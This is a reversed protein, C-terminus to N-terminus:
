RRTRTPAKDGITAQRAQVASNRWLGCPQPPRRLRRGGAAAQVRLPLDRTYNELPAVVAEIAHAETAAAAAEPSATTSGRGSAAAEGATAALFGRRARVQVGPRKM